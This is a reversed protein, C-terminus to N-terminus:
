GRLLAYNKPPFYFESLYILVHSAFLASGASLLTIPFLVYIKFPNWLLWSKCTMGLEREIWLLFRSHIMRGLDTRFKAYKKGKKLFIVNFVFEPFELNSLYAFTWVEFRQDNLEENKTWNKYTKKLYSSLVAVGAYKLIRWICIIVEKSNGM